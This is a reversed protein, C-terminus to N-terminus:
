KWWAPGHTYVFEMMKLFEKKSAAGRDVFNYYRSVTKKLERRFEWMEHYFKAAGFVKKKLSKTLKCYQAPELIYADGGFPKCGAEEFAKRDEDTLEDTTYWDPEQRDKYYDHMMQELKALMIGYIAFDGSRTDTLLGIREKKFWYSLLRLKRFM